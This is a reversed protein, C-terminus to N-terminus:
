RCFNIVARFINEELRDSVGPINCIEVKDTNRFFFPIDACHWAPKGHQYSPFDLTLNYLYAPAKGQKAHARALPKPLHM